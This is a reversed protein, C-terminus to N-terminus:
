WCVLSMWGQQGRFPADWSVEPPVDNITAAPKGPLAANHLAQEEKPLCPHTEGTAPTITGALSTPQSTTNTSLDPKTDSLPSSGIHEPSPYEAKAAERQFDSETSWQSAVVPTIADFSFLPPSIFAQATVKPAQYDAFTTQYLGNNTTNDVYAIPNLADVNQQIGFSTTTTTTTTTTDLTQAAPQQQQSSFSSNAVTPAATTPACFLSQCDIQPLFLDLGQWESQQLAQQQLDFDFQSMTAYNTTYGIPDDDDTAFAAVPAITGYAEM